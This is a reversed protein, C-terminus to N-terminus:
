NRGLSNEKGYNEIVKGKFNKLLGATQKSQWAAM